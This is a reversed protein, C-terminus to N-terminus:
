RIPHRRRWLKHLEMVVVISSAVVVLQMIDAVV